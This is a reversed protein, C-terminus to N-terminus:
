RRPLRPISALPADDRLAALGAVTPHAFVDTLGVDRRLVDRIRAAFTMALLSHGGRQFFDDHVGVRDVGLLEAAVAAIRDEVPDRPGVFETDADAVPAPLRGRDIKGSAALPFSDLVTVVSPVLYDPLTAALRTIVHRPAITAGATPTVYAVLRATGTSDPGALVVADAIEPLAVLAVRVEGPEIRFGRVKVQEDLRGIFDLDAGALWRGLDGTRYLRGAAYRDPVFKAATLEPRGLYGAAVGPGGVCIEGVAGFPVPRGAADLLVLHTNPLPRGIPVSDRPWGDAASSSAIITAETPGYITGVQNAGGASLAAVLDPPVVEGGVMIREVGDFAHPVEDLVRRVLTPVMAVHTVPTRALYRGLALADWGVPPVAVTAGHLLAGWIELASMDFIVPAAQLFVSDPGLGLYGPVHLRALLARHPVLVAKPTGTSGSTHILYAIDDPTGVPPPAPLPREDHVPVVTVGDVLPGGAVAVRVGCQGVLLAHRATPHGPDLPLYAAGATLVGLLAVVLDAGPPLCVAVVDGRGVGNSGLRAALRGARSVLERYSLDGSPSRVAVADPTRAAIDAIVAEIRADTRDVTPGRGLDVVERERAASLLSLQSIPLEGHEVASHLLEVYSMMLSEVFTDDFADVAFEWFMTIGDLEGPPSPLVPDPSRPITVVDGPLRGIHGPTARLPVVVVNLDFKASGNALAEVYTVDWPVSRLARVTSDHFSFAAQVLPTRGAVRVPGVEEVVHEFPLDQHDYAAVAMERVRGLLERFSPDGALRGRLVVTNVFMGLLDETAQWRRNAVGSGVLLDDSAGFRWLLVFFAALMTVFPSTGEQRSLEAVQRALSRDIHLRPSRGTVDHRSRTARRPLDLVTPAGALAARWFDRQGLAEPTHTWRAQWDAYAYYGLPVAPRHVRGYEVHDTYGEILDRVFVNFSWGDHVVHHEVHVLLHEEPALRILLWRVPPEVALRFPRRVVDRIARGALEDQASGADGLDVVPLDVQGPPVIEVAPAGDRLLFRSRLVGHRRVMDTLSGAMATVDMPGALHLVAQAHYAGSGGNLEDALLIRRQAFSPTAVLDAVPLPGRAPDPPLADILGAIDAVTPAALLASLAVDRGLEDRVRAALQTALLSHAGLEFLNDYAGVSVVDLLEAAIAAVTKETPTLPQHSSSTVGAPLRARDVKGSPTLPWEDLVVIRDPVLHAPLRRALEAVLQPGTASAMVYGTMGSGTAVVAADAVEPLAALVAEVHAPEVRFGRVKVQFDLRGLFEIEGDPLRRGRDGSRYVREGTVPDTVFREGTRVPDGLYGRGVGVGGICIEGPVGDPVPRLREDVISVTVGPIARGIPVSERDGDAPGAVHWTAWVATETPGYGNGFQHYRSWRAATDPHCVDGVSLVTVLDPHRGPELTRVVAAPLAVHTIRQARLFDALPEGSTVGVPPCVLTGGHALALVLDFVAGDFTPDGFLLVRAAPGVGALCSRQARVVNSVGRHPVMALKPVGTSGSTYTVYALDGARVRGVPGTAGTLPGDVDVRTLGPVGAGGVVGLCVTAGAQRAVDSPWRAGVALFAAGARWCALVGVVFEVGREAVLVVVDDRGVGNGRLAGAVRDAWAVLEGYRLRRGGDVIAVAQPDCDGILVPFPPLEAPATSVIEAEPREHQITAWPLRGRLSALLRDYESGSPLDTVDPM